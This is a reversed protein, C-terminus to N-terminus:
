SQYNGEPSSCTTQGFFFESSPSKRVSERTLSEIPEMHLLPEKFALDLNFSENAGESKLETARGERRQVVLTQPVAEEEETSDAVGQESATMTNKVEKAAMGNVEMRVEESEKKTVMQAETAEEVRRANNAEETAERKAAGKEEGAEEGLKSLTEAAEAEREANESDEM